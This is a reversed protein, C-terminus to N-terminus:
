EDYGELDEIRQYDSRRDTLDVVPEEQPEPSKTPIAQAARRVWRETEPTRLVLQGDVLVYRSSM